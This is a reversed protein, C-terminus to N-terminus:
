AKRPTGTGLAALFLPKWSMIHRSVLSAARDVEGRSAVEIMAYHEGVSAEQRERGEPSDIGYLRMDDRLQLVMKTLRPNGAKDVLARHFARDTSLYRPVDRDRVADAVADAARRLDETDAIRLRAAAVLAHTELLERLTFLNELDVASMPEVRFGRNRLPTVLGDRALELLAERVPTTSVGLESALAPVSFLTDPATRGSIIGWRVRELIQQRLNSGAVEGEVITM